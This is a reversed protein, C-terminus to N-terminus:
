FLVFCLLFLGRRLALLNPNWTLTPDGRLPRRQEGFVVDDLEWFVHWKHFHKTFLFEVSVHFTDNRLASSELCQSNFGTESGSRDADYGM